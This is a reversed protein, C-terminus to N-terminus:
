RNGEAGHAVYCRWTSLRRRGGDPAAEGDELMAAVRHQEGVVAGVDKAEGGVQRLQGLQVMTSCGDRHAMEEAGGWFPNGEDGGKDGVWRGV